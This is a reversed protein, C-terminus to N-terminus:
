PRLIRDISSTVTDRTTNYAKLGEELCWIMDDIFIAQKEPTDLYKTVIADIVLTTIQAAIVQQQMGPPEVLGIAIMHSNNIMEKVKGQELSHALLTKMLEVKKLRLLSLETETPQSPNM